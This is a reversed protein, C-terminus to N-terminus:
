DYLDVYPFLDLQRAAAKAAKRLNIPTGNDSVWERLQNKAIDKNSSYLYYKLFCEAAWDVDGLAAVSMGLNHWTAGREQNLNLSFVLTETAHAYDHNLFQAFGLNGLIEANLPFLRRAKTLLTIANSIEEPKPVRKPNILKVAKKNLSLASRADKAAPVVKGVDKAADKPLEGIFCVEIKMLDDRSLDYKGNAPTIGITGIISRDVGLAQLFRQMKLTTAMARETEIGNESVSHVSIKAKPSAFREVGAAFLIFCASHCFSDEPVYTRIKLNRVITAIEESVPEEGGPSDQLWLVTAPAGKKSASKIEKLFDDKDTRVIQGALRIATERGDFLPYSKFTAAWSVGHLLLSFLLVKLAFRM